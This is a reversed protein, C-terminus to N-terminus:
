ITRVSNAEASRHHHIHTTTAADAHLFRGRSPDAVDADLPVVVPTLLALLVVANPRNSTEGSQHDQDRRAVTIATMSAPMQSARADPLPAHSTLLRHTAGVADQRLAPVLHHVTHLRAAGVVHHTTTEDGVAPLCMATPAEHDMEVAHLHRDRTEPLLVDTSLAIESVTVIVDADAAEVVEAGRAESVIGSAHWSVTGNATKLRANSPKRARKTKLLSDWADASTRDSGCCCHGM